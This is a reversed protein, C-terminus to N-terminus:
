RSKAPKARKFNSWSFHASDSLIVQSLKRISLISRLGFYIVLLALILGPISTNMIQFRINNTISYMAFWVGSGMIIIAGAYLAAVIATKGKADQGLPKRLQKMKSEGKNVEIYHVMQRLMSETRRLKRDPRFFLFARLDAHSEAGKGM